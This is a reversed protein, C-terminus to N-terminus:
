FSTSEAMSQWPFIKVLDLWDPVNRAVETVEGKLLDWGCM